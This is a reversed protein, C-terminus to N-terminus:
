GSTPSIDPYPWPLAWLGTPPHSRQRRPAAERDPYDCVRSSPLCATPLGSVVQSPPVRLPEPSHGRKSSLDAHLYRCRRALHRRTRALPQDRRRRRGRSSPDDCVHAENVHPTLKKPGLSPAGQAALVKHLAIRAEVADDSLRRGTRTPFLSRRPPRGAGPALVQLIAVTEATLSAASRVAKQGICRVHTWQRTRRDRCHGWDVRLAAPRDTRRVGHPRSGESRGGPEPRLPLSAGRGGGARPVSV